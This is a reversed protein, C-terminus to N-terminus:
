QGDLELLRELDARVKAGSGPSTFREVGAALGELIIRLGEPSLEAPDIKHRTAQTKLVPWPFATHQALIAFVAASLPALHVGAPPKILGKDM